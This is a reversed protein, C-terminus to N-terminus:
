HRNDAGAPKDPSPGPTGPLRLFPELRALTAPGIGKVALLDEPRRYVAGAERAAVIRAAMVPGVGPLLQLSDAPATNPDLPVPPRKAATSARSRRAAARPVGPDAPASRADAGEDATAGRAAGPGGQLAAVTDGAAEVTMASGGTPTGGAADAPAAADVLGDLWLHERWAGDPGVLLHHRVSRGGGLAALALLLGTAQRRGLVSPRRLYRRLGAGM